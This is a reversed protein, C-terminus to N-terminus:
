QAFRAIWHLDCRSPHSRWVEWATQIFVHPQIEVRGSARGDHGDGPASGAGLVMDVERVCTSVLDRGVHKGDGEDTMATRWSWAWLMSCWVWSASSGASLVGLWVQLCELRRPRVASQCVSCPTVVVARTRLSSIAVSGLLEGTVALPSVRAGLALSRQRLWAVASSM